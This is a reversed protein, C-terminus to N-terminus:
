TQRWSSRWVGSRRCHGRLPRHRGTLAPEGSALHPATRVCALATAPHPHTRHRHRTRGPTRRHRAAGQPAAHTSSRRRRRVGTAPPDNDRRLRRPRFARGRHGNTLLEDGRTPDAVADRYAALRRSEFGHSGAGVIVTDPAVRLFLGSVATKRQGEWFWFDLHDKYPTKDKSFRIDRNIRFISGNVRPEAAIGPVLDDLAPAIMEVFAKAPEVYAVQYRDRNADFWAKTNDARLDALFATTEAPFAFRVTTM